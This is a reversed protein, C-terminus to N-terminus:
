EKIKSKTRQVFEEAKKEYNRNPIDREAVEFVALPKKGCVKEMEDFTKGKMGGYTCFFAVKKLKKRNQDLYTRVPASVSFAWVPTGIIVVEYEEPKKRKKWNPRKRPHRM